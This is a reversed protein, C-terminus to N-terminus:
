PRDEDIPLVARVVFEGGDPGAALTGGFVRVRERMGALGHGAGGAFAPEGPALANRVEVTLQARARDLRV